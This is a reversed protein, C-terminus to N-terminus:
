TPGWDIPLYLFKLGNDVDGPVLLSRPTLYGSPFKRSEPNEEKVSKGDASFSIMVVTPLFTREGKQFFLRRPTWLRFCESCGWESSSRSCSVPGLCRSLAHSHRNLPSTYIIAKLVLLKYSLGQAQSLQIYDGQDQRHGSESSIKKARLSHAANSKVKGDGMSGKHNGWFSAFLRDLTSIREILYSNDDRRSTFKRERLYLLYGGFSFELQGPGSRSNDRSQKRLACERVVEVMNSEPRLRYAGFIKMSCSLHVSM